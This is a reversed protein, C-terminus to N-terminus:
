PEPRRNPRRVSAAFEGPLDGLDRWRVGDVTWAGVDGSEFGDSFLASPDAIVMRRGRIEGEDDWVVLFDNGGLWTVDAHAGASSVELPSALPTGTATFARARVGVPDSSDGRTPGIVGWAVVFRGDSSAAIAPDVHDLGDDEHVQIETGLVSGDIEFRAARITDAEWVLVFRNSPLADVRADSPDPVGGVLELEELSGSGQSDFRRGVLGRAVPAGMGRGVPTDDKWTALFSGDARMAVDVGWRDDVTQLSLQLEAGVPAGGM